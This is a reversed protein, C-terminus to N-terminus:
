AKWNKLTRALDFTEHANGRMIREALAPVESERLWQEKVLESLARAIGKRAIRAHGAVMEVYLYDGGFTFVKNAPAAMLFEKLFRVSAAPNIIWAWCMDAYVNAYHKAMAILEGQYPYDIHMLVFKVKPFDRVLECLDSANDRVRRLPMGGDGAYYGTHLKVPLGYEQAKELCYRFLHDQLAKRETKSLSKEDKALREFLPAAEAAPVNDFQLPRSYACQDKVAIAMPGYTDFVRDIVGRAQDLTHVPGGAAIELSKKNVQSSLGISWIDQALLEPQATKLFPAGGLANVQCYDINSVDKLIRKYFGPEIQAALKESIAECNDERLDDEGYLARVSERLCQFYGTHKCREYYPAVLKWKEKPSLGRARLREVDKGDMGSVRLDSDTYHAFLMGFDPAPVDTQKTKSEIRHSEEVLHEHTDILPISDVLAALDRHLTDSHMEAHAGTTGPTACGGALLAGAGATAGAMGIFGRRDLPTTM